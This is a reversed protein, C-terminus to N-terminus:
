SWHHVPPAPWVPVATVRGAAASRIAMAPRSDQSTISYLLQGANHGRTPASSGNIADLLGRMTPSTVTPQRGQVAMYLDRNPNWLVGWGPLEARLQALEADHGNYGM